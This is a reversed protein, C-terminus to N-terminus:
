TFRLSISTGAPIVTAAATNIVPSVLNRVETEPSGLAASQPMPMQISHLTVMSPRGCQRLQWIMARSPIVIAVEHRTSWFNEHDTCSWSAHSRRYASV